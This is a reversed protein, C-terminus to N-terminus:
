IHTAYFSKTFVNFVIAYSNVSVINFFLTLETTSDNTKFLNPESGKKKKKKNKKKNNIKILM